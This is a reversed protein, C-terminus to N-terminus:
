YGNEIGFWEKLSLDRGPYHIIIKDDICSAPYNGGDLDKGDPLGIENRKTNKELSLCLKSLKSGEAPRVVMKISNISCFKNKGSEGTKFNDFDVQDLSYFECLREAKRIFFKYFEKEEKLHKAVEYEITIDLNDGQEIDTSTKENPEIKVKVNATTDYYKRSLLQRGYRSFEELEDVFALIDALSSLQKLHTFELNHQAIAFLIDGRVVNDIVEVKDLGWEEAPGRM